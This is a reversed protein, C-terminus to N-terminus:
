RLTAMSTRATPTAREINTIIVAATASAATRVEVFQVCLALYFSLRTHVRLEFWLEGLGHIGYIKTQNRGFSKVIINCPDV